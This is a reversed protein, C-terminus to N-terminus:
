RRACSSDPVKRWNAKKKLRLSAAANCILSTLLPARLPWPPSSSQSHQKASTEDSSGWSSSLVLVPM